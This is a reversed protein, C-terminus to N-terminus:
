IETISLSVDHQELLLNGGISTSTSGTHKTNIHYDLAYSTGYYRNCQECKFNRKMPKNIRREHNQTYVTVQGSSKNSMKKCM